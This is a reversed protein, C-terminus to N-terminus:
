LDECLKKATKDSVGLIKSIQVFSKGSARLVKAQEAKSMVKIEGIEQKRGGTEQKRDGAEQKRSGAEQKRDVAEQPIYDALYAKFWQRIQVSVADPLYEAFVKCFDDAMERFQKPLKGYKEAFESYIKSCETLQTHTLM